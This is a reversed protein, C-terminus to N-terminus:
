QHNVMLAFQQMKEPSPFTVKASAHCHLCGITPKVMHVLIRSCVSPIIGFILCLHKYNMTSGSYLLLLGLQADSLLTWKREKRRDLSHHDPLQLINYLMIFVDHALGTMLLFSSQDGCDMLQHWPSRGPPFLAERLLYWHKRIRNYYEVLCLVFLFVKLLHRQRKTLRTKTM